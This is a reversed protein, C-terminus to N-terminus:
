NNGCSCEEDALGEKPQVAKQCLFTGKVAEASHKRKQSIYKRGCLTNKDTQRRKHCAGQTLVVGKTKYSTM